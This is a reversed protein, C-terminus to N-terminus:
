HIYGDVFQLITSSKGCTSDGIVILKVLYDYSSNYYQKAIM